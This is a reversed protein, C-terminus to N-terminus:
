MSEGTSMPCLRSPSTEKEDEEPIWPVDRKNGAAKSSTFLSDAEDAEASQTEFFLNAAQTEELADSEQKQQAAQLTLRLSKEEAELDDAFIEADEDRGVSDQNERQHMTPLSRPNRM